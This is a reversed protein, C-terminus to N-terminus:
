SNTSHNFGTSNHQNVQGKLISHTLSSDILFIFSDIKSEINPSKSLDIEKVCDWRLKLEPAKTVSCSYISCCLFLILNNIKM